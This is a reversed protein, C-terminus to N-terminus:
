KLISPALNDADVRSSEASGKSQNLTYSVCTALAVALLGAGFTISIRQITAFVPDNESRRKGNIGSALSPLIALFLGAYVLPAATSTLNHNSQSVLLTGLAFAVTAVKLSRESPLESTGGESEKLASNLGDIGDVELYMYWLVIICTIGAFLTASSRTCIYYLALWIPMAATFLIIRTHIM